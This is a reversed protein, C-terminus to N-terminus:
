HNRQPAEGGFLELLRPLFSSLELTMIAFHADFLDASADSDIDEAQEQILDLFRLKKINLDEDLTFSFRNNWTLGLKICEKGADMHTDIERSFLDQGRYRVMNKEQKTARLDCESGVALDGPCNKKSLWRTMTAVPRELTRPPAIPLSGLSRRLLGTFADATNASAADIVLWQGPPDIYGYTRRSFSLARPLLEFTIEDRLGEREKRRVQRQEKQEIELIREGLTENIVAAPLVKEEKCACLMMFGNATHVRNEVGQGLPPVWGITSSELAGCARFDLTSLRQELDPELLQFPESFRFLVLNKFWM